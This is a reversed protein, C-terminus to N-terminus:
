ACVYRVSRCERYSQIHHPSAVGRPCLTRRKPRARCYEAIKAGGRRRAGRRAADRRAVIGGGARRITRAHLVRDTSRVAVEMRVSEGGRTENEQSRREGGRDVVMAMVRRPHSEAALSFTHIEKKKEEKEREKERKRKKGREIDM